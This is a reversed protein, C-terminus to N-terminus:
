VHARGIELGFGNVKKKELTGDKGNKKPQMKIIVRPKILGVEVLLRVERSLTSGSIKSRKGMETKEFVDETNM